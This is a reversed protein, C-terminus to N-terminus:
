QRNWFHCPSGAVGGQLWTSWKSWHGGSTMSLLLLRMAQLQFGSAHHLDQVAASVWFPEMPIHFAWSSYWLWDMHHWSSLAELCMTCAWSSCYALSVVHTILAVNICLSMAYSRNYSLQLVKGRVCQRPCLPHPCHYQSQSHMSTMLSLHYWDGTIFLYSCQYAILVFYNQFNPLQLWMTTLPSIVWKIVSTPM